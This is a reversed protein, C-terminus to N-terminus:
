PFYPALQDKVDSSQEDPSLNLDYGKIITLTDVAYPTFRKLRSDNLPLVYVEAVIVTNPLLIGFDDYLDKNNWAAILDDIIVIRGDENLTDSAEILAYDYNTFIFPYTHNPILINFPRSRPIDKIQVLVTIKESPPEIKERQVFPLMLPTAFTTFILLLFFAIGSFGITNRKTEGKKVEIIGIVLLAIFLVFLVVIIVYSMTRLGQM